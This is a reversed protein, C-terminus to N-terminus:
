PHAAGAPQTESRLWALRRAKQQASVNDVDKLSLALENRSGAQWHLEKEGSRTRVRLTLIDGPHLQDLKQGIDWAGVQGNIELITDGPALGAREAESGATVQIVSPPGSFNPAAEFGPDAALQSRRAIELGVFRLLNDWPIDETGAVYKQFFPELRTNSVAEAAQRVGDSDPFFLGKRAYNQNLWQFVQRLSARDSTTQRLQLDLAIGLLYGKNYYSISRQPLRYYDYKELWADLSSEEVSQTQQAPRDELEKIQAAMRKLFRPEDLLGARLLVYDAVTSTVGESFWLATTYNERAYDIPELSQPRIRKVNWVHFFEHATTETLAQPNEALRRASIDIATSNAHEMGGGTPIRPIHYLFVYTDFPRDAMWSTAATAIAHDTTVIAQMNYDSPDADVVVRYHAGAEDFDSERFSGIEVPSDVLQDYADASFTAPEPEKLATAFKWTSPVETFHLQIPASRQDIPYMLIEALNFFAHQTDLQAGFPGPDDVFVEYEVETGSQSNSIRWLSKDLLRTLVDQGASNRARVWNVYQSFDRIQYLANWVPLQLDHQPAGPPIQLTVRVLHRAPNALSITYRLPAPSPTGASSAEARQIRAFLLIAALPIFKLSRRCLKAFNPSGLSV